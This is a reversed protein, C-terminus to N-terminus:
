AAAAIRHAWAKHEDYLTHHRLCGHLIGVLRNGLARLAQHHTDGAARHQDYFTRAGPSALLACFAWHDIADYLRNNRVYRALVARKKGSAITLPSTGAYNKRSKADTYRNPDDGFEGLVRAGLVVGLGPLSLYIDADPHQEFDKGLQTELDSIQRNLEGIIAVTATTIAAFAHTVAPPAALQPTRLAAQIQRARTDLNRRRGGRALATRIASVPLRAGHLPTPARGLVALADRDHLDDFAVLAWILNQHGRALV